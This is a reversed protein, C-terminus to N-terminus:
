PFCPDRRLRQAPRARYRVRMWGLQQDPLSRASPARTSQGFREPCNLRRHVGTPRAQGPLQGFCKPCNVRLKESAGIIGLRSMVYTIPSVFLRTLLPKGRVQKADGRRIRLIGGLSRPGFYVEAAGGTDVRIVILSTRLRWYTNSAEITQNM